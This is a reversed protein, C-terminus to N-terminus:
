SKNEVALLFVFDKQILDKIKDKHEDQRFNLNVNQFTKM